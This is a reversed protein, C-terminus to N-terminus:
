IRSDKESDRPHLVSSRQVVKWEDATLKAPKELIANSVSLKGIDHLLAARRLLKMDRAGMGFWCGIETAADAVGNSHRYTFPSKADIIEAFALCINDISDESARM